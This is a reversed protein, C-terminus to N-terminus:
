HSSRTRFRPQQQFQPQTQQFQPQQPVTQSQDPLSQPQAPFNQSPDTQNGFGPQYGQDHHHRGFFQDNAPAQQSLPAQASQGEALATSTGNNASHDFAGIAAWGGVTAALSLSTIVIKTSAVGATRRRLARSPAM